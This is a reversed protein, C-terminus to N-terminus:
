ALDFLLLEAGSAAKISSVADGSFAAGDGARLKEGVVEVEGKAVQLWGYRKPDITIPLEKEREAVSVFLRADQHIPVGGGKGHEGAVQVWGTKEQGDPLWESYSPTVSKTHPQIWIQLLHVPTDKSANFESHTIGTGASMGQVEGAKIVRGNGMSDKHSLEGSLIYTIIEMDRHPHTGFGEAPAVVDENIVRLARFGMFSPDYYDAFSFTHYSDLWGHNAHGREKGRRVQFM